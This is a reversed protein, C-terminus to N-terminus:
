RVVFIAVEAIKNINLFRPKANMWVHENRRFETWQATHTTSSYVAM